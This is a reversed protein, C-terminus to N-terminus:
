LSRGKPFVVAKKDLGYHWKKIRTRNTTNVNDWVKLSIAVVKKLTIKEAKKQKSM